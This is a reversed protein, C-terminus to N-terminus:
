DGNKILNSLMGIGQVSVEVRDGDGVPGIGSPTGTFILDGPYLTMFRSAEMILRDCTFILEDTSSDQRIAGNVRTTIRRGEPRRDRLVWPGVPSFQDFGKARTWQGDTAQLDRATIDNGITLGAIVDMAEDPSSVRRAVKGIVLVLEGEYDIRGAWTPIHIIEDHSALAGLQKLFFLPTEPVDSNMEAAHARYNKGVCLITRPTTPPLWRVEQVDVEHVTASDGQLWDGEFLAARQGNIRASWTHGLYDARGYFTEM